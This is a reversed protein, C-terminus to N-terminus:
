APICDLVVFGSLFVNVRDSSQGRSAPLIWKNTPGDVDVRAAPVFCPEPLHDPATAPALHAETEDVPCSIMFEMGPGGSTM